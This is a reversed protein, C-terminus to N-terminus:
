ALIVSKFELWCAGPGIADRARSTAFVYGLGQARFFDPPESDSLRLTLETTRPRTPRIVRSEGVGFETPVLEWLDGIERALDLDHPADLVYDCPEGSAPVVPPLDAMADWTEWEIRAIHAKLVPKFGSFRLGASEARARFEAIVIPDSLVPFSLPPVFPAARELQICGDVRPLHRSMGHVLMHGYDGWPGNRGKVAWVAPSKNM